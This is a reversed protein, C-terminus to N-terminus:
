ILSPSDDGRAVSVELRGAREGGDIRNIGRCLGGRGARQLGWDGVGSALCIGRGERGTM